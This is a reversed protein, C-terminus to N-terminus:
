LVPITKQITQRFFSTYLNHYFTVNDNFYRVEKPEIEIELGNRLLNEEYTARMRCHEETGDDSYALVYDIRRLGDDFFLEKKETLQLFDSFIQLSYSFFFKVGECSVNNSNNFALKSINNFHM